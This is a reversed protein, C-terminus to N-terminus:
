HKESASHERHMAKSTAAQQIVLTDHQIGRLLRKIKKIKKFFFTGPLIIFIHQDPPPALELTYRNGRSTRIEFRQTHTHILSPVEFTWKVSDCM